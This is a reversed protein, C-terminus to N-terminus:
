QKDLLTILGEAIERALENGDEQIDDAIYNIARALILNKETNVDPILLSNDFIDCNINAQKIRLEALEDLLYDVYKQKNWKNKIKQEYEHRIVLRCTDKENM